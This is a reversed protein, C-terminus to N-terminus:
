QKEEKAKRLAIRMAGIFWGKSYVNGKMQAKERLSALFAVPSEVNASFEDVLKRNAAIERPEFGINYRLYSYVERDNAGPPLQAIVQKEVITPNYKEKQEFPFFIVHDLNRGDKRAAVDCAWTAKKKLENAAPVIVRRFFDNPKTYKGECGMLRYLEAFSYCIPQKQNAMLFFLKLSYPSRLRLAISLDYQVYGASFDLIADWVWDFVHVEAINEDTRINVLPCLSAVKWKAAATDRYEVIKGVITKLAEAAIEYHHSGPPIISRLPIRVVTGCLSHSRQVMGKRVVFGRLEDQAAEVVRLLIRMETINLGSRVRSFIYSQIINKPQIENASM